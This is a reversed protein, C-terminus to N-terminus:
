VPHCLILGKGLNLTTNYRIAHGTERLLQRYIKANNIKNPEAMEIVSVVEDKTSVIFGERGIFISVGTSQISNTKPDWSFKQGSYEANLKRTTTHMRRMHKRNFELAHTIVEDVRSEYDGHALDVAVVPLGCYVNEVLLHIGDLSLVVEDGNFWIEGDKKGLILVALEDSFFEAPLKM